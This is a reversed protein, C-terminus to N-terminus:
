NADKVVKKIGEALSIQPEWNPLRPLQDLNFDMIEREHYSYFGFNFQINSKATQRIMEAIKKLKIKENAFVSYNKYSEQQLQVENISQDFANVVDDIYVPAIYQEGASMNFEKQNEKIAKLLLTYFKSRNDNNGYTDSLTLTIAKIFNAQAYYILIDEFAKKTAAYFDKPNYPTTDISTFFTSTNIFYKIGKNKAYELLHTGFTINTAISEAVDHNSNKAFSTALHVIIDIDFNNKELSQYTGDYNFFIIGPLQQDTKKRITCFLQHGQAILKKRLASGIYGTAGTLLINM